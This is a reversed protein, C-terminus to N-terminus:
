RFECVVFMCMAVHWQRSTSARVVAQVRMRGTHCAARNCGTRPVNDRPKPSITLSRFCFGDSLSSVPFVPDSAIGHPAAHPATLRQPEAAPHQLSNSDLSQGLVSENLPVRAVARWSLAARLSVAQSHRRLALRYSAGM